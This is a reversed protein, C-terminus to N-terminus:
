NSVKLATEIRDIEAGLTDVINEGHRLVFAELEDVSKMNQVEQIM